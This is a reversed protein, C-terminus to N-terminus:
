KDYFNETVKLLALLGLLASLLGLYKWGTYITAFWFVGLWISTCAALLALMNWKYLALLYAVPGGLFVASWLLFILFALSEM